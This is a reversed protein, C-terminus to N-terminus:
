YETIKLGMSHVLAQKIPYVETRFGSQMKVDEIIEERKDLDYYTFDAVYVMQRGSPYKVKVGGLIIPIRVQFQLNRIHGARELMQLDVGRKMERKSDYKRGDPGEVPKRKGYRNRKPKAATGAEVTRRKGM